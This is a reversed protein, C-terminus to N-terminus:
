GQRERLAQVTLPAEELGFVQVTQLAVAVAQQKIPEPEGSLGPSIGDKAIAALARDAYKAGCPKCFGEITKSREVMEKLYGVLYTTLGLYSLKLTTPCSECEGDVIKCNCTAPAETAVGASAAAPAGAPPLEEEVPEMRAQFTVLVPAGKLRICASTGSMMDALFREAEDLGAKEIALGFGAAAMWSVASVQFLLLEALSVEKGGAKEMLHTMAGQAYAKGLERFMADNPM